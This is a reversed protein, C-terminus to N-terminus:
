SLKAERVLKMSERLAVLLDEKAKIFTIDGLIFDIIINKEVGNDEDILIVSEIPSYYVQRLEKDRKNWYELPTNTGNFYMGFGTPACETFLSMARPSECNGTLRGYICEQTDAPDIEDRFEKLSKKEEKSIHKKLNNAEILCSDVFMVIAHEDSTANELTNLIKM